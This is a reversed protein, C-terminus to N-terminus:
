PLSRERRANEAEISRPFLIDNELHVHERFGAEFKRLGTYLARQSAPAKAPAAFGATLTHLEDLKRTAEAHERMMHAVPQRVFQATVAGQACPGGGEQEMEAIVPFIIHEEKGIHAILEAHLARILQAVARYKDSDAPHKVALRDAMRALAPLDQRIRRHHERVILQIIRTLSLQDVSRAARGKATLAHLKEEMQDVSLRLAACTEGILKDGWARLDIDFQEFVAVAAPYEAAITRLPMRTISM